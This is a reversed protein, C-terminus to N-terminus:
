ERHPALPIAQEVSSRPAARQKRASSARGGCARRTSGEAARAACNGLGSRDAEQAQGGAQGRSGSADPMLEEDLSKTDGQTEEKDAHARGGDGEQKVGYAAHPVAEGRQGHNTGCCGLKCFSSGGVLPSSSSLSSSL